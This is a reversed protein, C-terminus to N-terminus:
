LLEVAAAKSDPALHAYRLTMALDSHGLLDRVTNLPVGAMVLKSAFTHRLDHWRFGEIRALKLLADWSKKVNDLRKGDKGPFVYGSNRPHQKRWGEISTMTEKNMPIHRTQGSKSTDGEVTILKNKLDIDAWTLNFVEGRRMGTNLSLLVLPKLHDPFAVERLDPLRAKHREERWKNASDREARITEQRDDLAQRLRAEEDPLLYRIRGKRDTKLQKLRTMPHETLFGWEIARSLAGRMSAMKRNATSDTNGAKLWAMRQSELDRQSIENLRKGMISAFGVNLLNLTKDASKLNTAMWPSYHDDIFDRLTLSNASRRGLTVALPAGHEHAEALYQAAERRAQELTMVGVRGLTAAQNRGWSVMYSAHGSPLVRISLGPQATDHIRYPKDKATLTSLTRSTIKTKM